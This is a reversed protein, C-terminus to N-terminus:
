ASQADARSFFGAKFGAPPVAPEPPPDGTADEEAEPPAAQADPRNDGPGGLMTVVEAQVPELEDLSLRPDRITFTEGTRRHEYIRVLVGNDRTQTAREVLTRKRELMIALIYIVNQRVEPDEEILRRLLDEATEKALPDDPGAPPLHFMGQWMSIGRDAPPHAQWCPDCFDARVYGEESFRLVSFCTQRDEFPAECAACKDDRPRIDWDTAM